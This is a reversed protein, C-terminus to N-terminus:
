RIKPEPLGALRGPGEPSRRARFLICVAVYKMEIIYRILLIFIFSYVYHFKVQKKNLHLKSMTTKFSKDSNKFCKASVKRVNKPKLKKFSCGIKTDPNEEKFMKFADELTMVMVHKPLIVAEGTETKTKIVETKGPIQRTVDPQLYFDKVKKMTEDSLKDKRKKRTNRKWWDTNKNQPVGMRIDFYKKLHGRLKSRKSLPAVCISSKIEKYAQLKDKNCGGKPKSEQLKEKINKMIAEGMDLSKCSSPKLIGKRELITATRPSSQCLKELVAARKQPTKPLTKKAQLSARYTAWYSSIGKSTGEGPDKLKLRMRWNKVMLKKREKRHKEQQIKGWRKKSAQRAKKRASKKGGEKKLLRLEDIQKKKQRYKRMEDRKKMRAIEKEAESM